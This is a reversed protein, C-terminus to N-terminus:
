WALSWTADHFYYSTLYFLFIFCKTSSSGITIKLTFIYLISLHLHNIPSWYCFISLHAQYTSLYSLYSIKCILVRIHRFITIIPGLFCTTQRSKKYRSQVEWTVKICIICENLFSSMQSSSCKLLTHPFALSTSINLFYSVGLPM